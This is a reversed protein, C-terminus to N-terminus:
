EPRRTILLYDDSPLITIRWDAGQRTLSVTNTNSYTRSGFFGVSGVYTHVLVVTAADATVHENETTFYERTSSSRENGRSGALALFRDHDFRAQASTALLDWAPQPDQRQEALAYALVVGAPTTMRLRRAGASSPQRRWPLSSWAWFALSWWRLSGTWITVMRQKHWWMTPQDAAQVHQL